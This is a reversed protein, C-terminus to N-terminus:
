GNGTSASSDAALAFRRKAATILRTFYQNYFFMIIGFVVLSKIIHTLVTQTECDPRAAYCLVPFSLLAFYPSIKSWSDIIRCVFGFLLGLALGFILSGWYGFAIYGDAFIGLGMSTGARIFHGSYKNFIDKNGATLKDPALFRPLLAAELYLGVLHLGQFDKRKDMNEMTSAFIWAQNVRTISGSVNNSSFLGESANINELAIRQFTSFNGSQGLDATTQRYEGKTIQIIFFSIIAITVFFFKKIASPKRIYAWFLGFFILWMLSDHFMGNGVSRSVELFFVILLHWKYKKRDIAFLAFAATFRIMGLLYLFFGTEGPFLNNALSFLIGAILWNVLMKQNAVEQFKPLKYDLSFLRVKFFYLGYRFCLMAPIAILFYDTEPVRMKYFDTASPYHYSLAPSMLYNMGYLTVMFERLAICSNTKVFLEYAFVFWIGIAIAPLVEFGFFISAVLYIIFFVALKKEM